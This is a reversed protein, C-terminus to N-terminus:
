SNESKRDVYNNKNTHVTYPIDPDADSFYHVKAEKQYQTILSICGPGLSADTTHMLVVCGLGSRHALAFQKNRGSGRVAWYAAMTGKKQIPRRSPGSHQDFAFPFSKMRKSTGVLVAGKAVAISNV